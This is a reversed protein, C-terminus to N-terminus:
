ISSARHRFTLKRALTDSSWDTPDLRLTPYFRSYRSSVQGQRTVKDYTYRRTELLMDKKLQRVTKRSEADIEHEYYASRRWKSVDNDM